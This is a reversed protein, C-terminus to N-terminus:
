NSFSAYVSWKEDRAAMCQVDHSPTEAVLKEHVGRVSDGNQIYFVFEKFRATTITLVHIAPGSSKLFSLIKDELQNLSANEVAVSLSNGDSQSLPIAFGVRTTLAAHKSWRKATTNIRVLMPGEATMTEGVSWLENDENLDSIPLHKKFTWM